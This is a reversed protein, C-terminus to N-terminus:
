ERKRGHSFYNIIFIIILLVGWAFDKFFSSGRVGALLMHSGTSIIQLILVTIFINLVSGKGSIVGALVGILITLMVYTATGYANSASMTRSMILVGAISSLVGSFIFIQMITAKNNIGSFKAATPNTGLMRTKFGFTTHNLLVYAILTVGIFVLFPMPIGAPTYSAISGISEPFGTVTQGKTLGVGIGTFVSMSALTALIPPAQVYGVLFGNIAGTIVGILLSIVITVLVISAGQSNPMFRLIFLGSLVAALNATANISLNIGGIMVTIMMALSLIGIEPLQIAMSSISRNTLFGEESIGFFAMLLIFIGALLLTQMEFRIKPKVNTNNM